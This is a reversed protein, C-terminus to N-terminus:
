VKNIKKVCPVIDEFDFFDEVDDDFSSFYLVFLNASARSKTETEAPVHMATDNKAKRPNMKANVKNIRAAVSEGIKSVACLAAMRRFPNTLKTAFVFLLAADLNELDCIL